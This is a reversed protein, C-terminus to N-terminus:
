RLWSVKVSRCGGQMASQCGGGAVLPSAATVLPWAAVNAVVLACRFEEFADAAARAVDAARQLAAGLRELVANFAALTDQNAGICLPARPRLAKRLVTM